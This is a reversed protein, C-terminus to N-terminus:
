VFCAACPSGAVFRSSVLGVSDYLSPLVIFGSLLAVVRLRVSAVSSSCLVVYGFLPFGM